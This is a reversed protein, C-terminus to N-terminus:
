EVRRVHLTVTVRQRRPKWHDEIETLLGIRWERDDVRFVGVDDIVVRDGRDPFMPNNIQGDGWITQKFVVTNRHEVYQVDIQRPNM